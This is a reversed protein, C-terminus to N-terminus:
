KYVQALTKLDGPTELTLDPLAYTTVDQRLWNAQATHMGAKQAGAIDLFNSDGTMLTAKPDLKLHDLIAKYGLENSKPNEMLETVKARTPSDRLLTSGPADEIPHKAATFVNKFYKSLGSADLREIASSPPSATFVHLNKGQSDLSELLDVVDARPKLAALYAKQAAPAIDPFRENLNVGPYLDQIPKVLDLRDALAQTGLQRSSQRLSTSVFEPDLGTKKVIQNTLEAYEARYADGTPVLTRDLDFFYDNVGRLFDAKPLAKALEPAVKPVLGAAEPGGKSLLASAEKVTSPLDSSLEASPKMLKLLESVGGMKYIVAATGIVAIGTAILAKHHEAFDVSEHLAKSAEDQVFTEAQGIRKTVGDFAGGM